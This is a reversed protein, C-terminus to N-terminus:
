IETTRTRAEVTYNLKILPKKPLHQLMYDASSKFRIMSPFWAEDSKAGNKAANNISVVAVHQDNANSSAAAATTPGAAM